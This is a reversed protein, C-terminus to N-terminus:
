HYYFVNIVKYDANYLGASPRASNAVLVDAPM